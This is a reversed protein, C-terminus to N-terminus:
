SLTRPDLVGQERVNEQLTRKGGMQCAPQEGKERGGWRLPRDKVSDRERRQCIPLAVLSKFRAFLDLEQGRISETSGVEGLECAEPPEFGGAPVAAEHLEVYWCAYSMRYLVQNTM